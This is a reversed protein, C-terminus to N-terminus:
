EEQFELGTMINQIDEALGPEIENRYLWLFRKRFSTVKDSPYIELEPVARFDVLVSKLAGQVSGLTLHIFYFDDESETVLPLLSECEELSEIETEIFHIIEKVQEYSNWKNLKDIVNNELRSLLTEIKHECKQRDAILGSSFCMASLGVALLVIYKKM